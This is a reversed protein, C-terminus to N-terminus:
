FGLSVLAEVVRSRMADSKIPFARCFHERNIGPNRERVNRAWLAARAADGNLAHAAGAIMAILVHAGHARGAQEAWRAADADEGVAMHTFARTALMAYFLPDLPSLRMALDVHARGEAPRGSLAETWALAYLGQAYHPSVTTARSLWDSSCELDGSLWYSRGMAFNVFPDLPDLELGREAHGRALASQAAVDPTFRMFAAQFHTFSLAGHARAFLPDLAVARQFLSRAAASDAGNFRYMHQLGLHYAAWADLNEAPLLRARAAEHDPIRIELATLVLACIRARMLHVDDVAGTLHEGWVIRGDLTDALEVSVALRQDSLEIAGSLCYRVRLLRGIDSVDLTSPRMRFSSGRATVFLWRLRSLERILEAAL